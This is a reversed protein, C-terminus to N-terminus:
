RDLSADITERSSAFWLRLADKGGEGFASGPALAVGSERLLDLAFSASDGLGDVTFFAFFSGVPATVRVGEIESLGDVVQTPRATFHSRRESVCQEGDRLAAFGNM